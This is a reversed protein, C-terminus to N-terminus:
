KKLAIQLKQSFNISFKKITIRAQIWSTNKVYLINFKM